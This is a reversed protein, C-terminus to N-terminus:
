PQQETTEEAAPAVTKGNAVVVVIETQGDPEIGAPLTTGIELGLQEALSETEAKQDGDVDYIFGQTIGDKQTRTIVIQNGFQEFKSDLSAIASESGFVEVAIPLNVTTSKIVKQESPRYHIATRAKRYVLLYDGQQLDDFVEALGPNEEVAKEADNVYVITPDEGEPLDFIEGIEALLKENQLDKREQEPLALERSLDRNEIFLYATAGSLGLLLVINTIILIKKGMNTNGRAM